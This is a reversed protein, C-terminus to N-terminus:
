MAIKAGFHLDEFPSGGADTPKNLQESTTMQLQGQPAPSGEFIELINMDLLNEQKCETLRSRAGSIFSMNLVKQALM